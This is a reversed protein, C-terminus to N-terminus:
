FVPALDMLQPIHCGSAFKGCFFEACKKYREFLLASRKEDGYVKWQGCIKYGCGQNDIFGTVDELPYGLFIGIEHPFSGCTKFRNKLRRLKKEINEEAQYGYKELFREADASFAKILLEKRYLMILAYRDCSCLCEVKVGYQRLINRLESIGDGATDKASPHWTFINAPKIGALVPACHLVVLSELEDAMIANM